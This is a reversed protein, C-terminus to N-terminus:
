GMTGSLTAVSAIFPAVTALIGSQWQSVFPVALLNQGHEDFKLGSGGPTSGAPEDSALLAARLKDHDLSGARRIAAFIVRAGSYSVLSHGSRPPAGYKHQYAAAVGGAGPAVIDSVRYPPPGVNLVGEFDAGLAQATDNLAYGGGAGVVMRPRWAAQKLARHFSVVDNPMGTHLVVDVAAGRLRQVIPGFDLTGAGYSIRESLPLGREKCRQEQAAALATGALGDEFLLALKLSQPAIDWLRALEGAVTDVTLAGCASALPGTRFLLKFARATIPDALADLEIYPVAAVEAVASAAFSVVSSFSGFILGAKAHEILRKAEAAAPGAETADGRAVAVPHGLLGGGANVEDVALDLGRFSEDGLLSLSGSFPFLAGITLPEPQAPLAPTAAARAAPTRANAGATMATLLLIRRTIPM